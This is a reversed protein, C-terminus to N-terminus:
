RPTSHLGHKARSHGSFCRLHKFSMAGAVTSRATSESRALRRRPLRQHSGVLLEYGAPRVQHQDCAIALRRDRTPESGALPPAGAGDRELGRAAALHENDGAAVFSPHKAVVPAATEDRAEDVIM